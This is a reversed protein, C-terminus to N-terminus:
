QAAERRGVGGGRLVVFGMGHVGSVGHDADVSVPSRKPGVRRIAKTRFLQDVDAFYAPLSRSHTRFMRQLTCHEICHRM